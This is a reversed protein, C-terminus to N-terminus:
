VFFPAAQRTETRKAVPEVRSAGDIIVRLDGNSQVLVDKLDYTGEAPIELGELIVKSPLPGGDGATTTERVTIPGMTCFFVVGNRSPRGSFWNRGMAEVRIGPLDARIEQGHRVEAQSMRERLRESQSYSTVRAEM